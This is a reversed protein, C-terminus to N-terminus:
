RSGRALPRHRTTCRRRSRRWQTSARRTSAVSPSLSSGPWPGSTSSSGQVEDRMGPVVARVVALLGFVNTDFQQRAEADSVEEVPGRVEMGANNVLIDIAGAEADRGCPEVSRIGCGRCRAARGRDELGRGGGRGAVSRGQRNRGDFVFVTHGQRAFTLAALKGFGSSCGTILVTSM